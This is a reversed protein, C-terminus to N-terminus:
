YISRKGRYNVNKPMIDVYSGYMRCSKDEGDCSFCTCNDKTRDEFSTGGNNLVIKWFCVESLERNRSTSKKENLM